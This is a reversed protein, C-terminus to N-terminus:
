LSASAWFLIILSGYCFFWLLKLRESEAQGQPTSLAEEAINVITSPLGATQDTIPPACFVEPGVKEMWYFSPWMM